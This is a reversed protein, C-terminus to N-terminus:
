RASRDVEAAGRGHRERHGRVRWAWRGRGRVVGPEGGRVGSLARARVGARVGDRVGSPDGGSPAGGSLGGGSEVGDSVVAGTFVMPPAVRQGRHVVAPRVVFLVPDWAVCGPWLECDVGAGSPAGVGSPAGPRGDAWGLSVPDWSFEVEAEAVAGRLAVKAAEWSGGEAGVVEASVASVVSAAPVGSAASVAPMGPAASVGPAASESGGAREVGSVGSVGSVGGVGLVRRILEGVGWAQERAGRAGETGAEWALLWVQQLDDAVDLARRRSEDLVDGGGSGGTALLDRIDEEHREVDDGLDRVAATLADLRALVGPLVADAYGGSERVREGDEDRNGRRSFM